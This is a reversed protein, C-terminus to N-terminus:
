RRGICPSNKTNFAQYRNCYVGQERRCAGVCSPPAFAAHRCRYDCYRPLGPDGTSGARPVSLRPRRKM